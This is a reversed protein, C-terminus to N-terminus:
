HQCDDPSSAKGAQRGQLRRRADNSVRRILSGLEGFEMRTTRQAVGQYCDEIQTRLTRSWRSFHKRQLIGSWATWVSAAATGDLAPSSSAPAGGGVLAQFMVVDQPMVRRRGRGLDLGQPPISASSVVAATVQM